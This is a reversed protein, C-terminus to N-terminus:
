ASVERAIAAGSGPLVLAFDRRWAYGRPGKPRGRKQKREASQCAMCVARAAMRQNPAFLMLDKTQGCPGSCERVPRAEQKMTGEQCLFDYGVEAMGILTAVDLGLGAALRSVQVIYLDRAGGTEVKSIYTRVMSCRRALDRQSLGRMRRLFAVAWGFALKSNAVPALDRNAEIPTPESQEVLFLAPDDEEPIYPSKCAVCLGSASLFQGRHCQDCRVVQRGDVSPLVRASM